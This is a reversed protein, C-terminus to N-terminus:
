AGRLGKSPLCSSSAELYTCIISRCTRAATLSKRTALPASAASNSAPAWTMRPLLVKMGSTRVVEGPLVTALVVRTLPRFHNRARQTDATGARRVSGLRIRFQSKAPRLLDQGSRAVKM